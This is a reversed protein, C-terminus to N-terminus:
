MKSGMMLTQQKEITHPKTFPMINLGSAQYLANWGDDAKKPQTSTYMVAGTQPSEDLL